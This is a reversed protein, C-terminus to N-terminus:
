PSTTVATILWDGATTGVRGLTFFLTALGDPLPCGRGAHVRVRTLLTITRADPVAYVRASRFRFGHLSQLERRSWLDGRSCLTAARALQGDDLLRCYLEVTRVADLRRAGEPLPEPITSVPAPSSAALHADGPVVSPAAPDARGCGGLLLAATALALVLAVASLATRSVVLASTTRATVMGADQATAETL